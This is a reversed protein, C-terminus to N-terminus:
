LMVLSNQWPYFMEIDEHDLGLYGCITKSLWHMGGPESKNNFSKFYSLYRDELLEGLDEKIKLDDYLSEFCCKHFNDLISNAKEANKYTSRVALVMFCMQALCWEAQFKDEDLISQSLNERYFETNFNDRLVAILGSSIIKGIEDHNCTPKFRSLFKFM